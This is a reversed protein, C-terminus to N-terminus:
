SSAINGKVKIGQRPKISLLEEGNTNSPNVRFSMLDHHTANNYISTPLISNFDVYDRNMIAKLVKVPLPPLVPEFSSYSNGPPDSPLGPACPTEEVLVESEIEINFHEKQGESVSPKFYNVLRKALTAKKGVTSLGYVACQSQLTNKHTRM